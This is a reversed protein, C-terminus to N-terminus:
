ETEGNENVPEGYAELVRRAHHKLGQFAGEIRDSFRSSAVRAYHYNFDAVYLATENDRRLTLNLGPDGYDGVGRLSKTVKTGEITLGCGELHEADATEIAARVGDGASDTSYSYNFGVASIPTHLLTRLVRVACGNALEMPGDEPTSPQITLRGPALRFAIGRSAFGFLREDSGFAVGLDVQVDGEEDLLNTAIWNPTFIAQNWAGVLVITWGSIDANM